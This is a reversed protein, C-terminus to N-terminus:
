PSRALEHRAIEGRVDQELLSGTLGYRKREFVGPSDVHQRGRM